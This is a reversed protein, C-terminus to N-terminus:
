EAPQAEPAVKFTFQMVHRKQDDDLKDLEVMKYNIAGEEDRYFRLGINM